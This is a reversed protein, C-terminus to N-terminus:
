RDGLKSNESLLGLVVTLDFYFSDSEAKKGEKQTDKDINKPYKENKGTEGEAELELLLIKRFPRLFTLM